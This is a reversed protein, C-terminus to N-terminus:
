MQLHAVSRVGDHDAIVEVAIDPSRLVSAEDTHLHPGPLEALHLQAAALRGVDHQGRDRVQGCPELTPRRAAVGSSSVGVGM